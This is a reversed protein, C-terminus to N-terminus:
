YLGRISLTRYDRFHIVESSNTFQTFWAIIFNYVMAGTWLDFFGVFEGFQKQGRYEFQHEIQIVFSVDRLCTVITLHAFLRQLTSSYAKYFILFLLILALTFLSTAGSIGRILNLSKLQEVTFNTCNLNFQSQPYMSGDEPLLAASSTLGILFFFTNAIVKCYSRVCLPLDMPDGGGGGGGGGGGM